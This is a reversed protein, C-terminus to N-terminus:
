IIGDNGCLYLLSTRGECQPQVLGNKDKVVLAASSPFSITVFLFFASCISAAMPIEDDLADRMSLREFSRIGCCESIDLPKSFFEKSSPTLWEREESSLNGM